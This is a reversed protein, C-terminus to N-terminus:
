DLLLCVLTANDMVTLSALDNPAAASAQEETRFWGAPPRSLLSVSVSRTSRQQKEDEDEEEEESDSPQLILPLLQLSRQLYLQFSNIPSSVFIIIIIIIAIFIILTM